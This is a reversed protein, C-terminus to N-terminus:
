RSFATLSDAGAAFVTAADAGPVWFFAGQERTTRWRERGDAVAIATLRGGLYPVYVDDRDAAIAFGVSGMDDGNVRWRRQRDTIGYAAVDGTLSGLMLQGGTLTMARFDPQSGHGRVVVSRIRGTERDIGYVSGDATAAFVMDHAMAPGGAWGSNAKLVASEPFSMQWRVAGTRADAAIVGGTTRGAFISFGAVVLDDDAVPAFV